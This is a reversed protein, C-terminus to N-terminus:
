ALLIRASVDVVSGTRLEAAWERREAPTPDHDLLLRSLETVRRQQVEDQSAIAAAMAARSLGESLRDVWYTRGEPEPPRGVVTAFAEDVFTDLERDVGDWFATSGVLEAVLEHDPTAAELESVWHALDAADPPSGTIERYRAEVLRGLWAPDAALERALGERTLTGARIRDSWDARRDPAVGEGLIRAVTSDVLAEVEGPAPGSVVVNTIDATAAPTGAARLASRLAGNGGAYGVVEVTYTVSRAARPEAPLVLVDASAGDDGAAPARGTRLGEPDPAGTTAGIALPSSLGTGDPLDGTPYALTVEQEPGQGLWVQFVKRDGSGVADLRWEVVVWSRTGDTVTALLVGPAGEGTLDTWFPAIVDGTPTRGGSGPCCVLDTPGAVGGARLYGDSSVGIRDYSTGNFTFPRDLDVELAEDDGIPVPAIGLGDLGVYRDSPSPVLQPPGGARGPLTTPPLTVLDAGAVAAPAGAAEVRLRADVRTTGSVSTAGPGRNTATVRCTAAEAMGVGASDCESSVTVQGPEAALSVPLRLTPRDEAVLRVEGTQRGVLGDSTFTLALEKTVGRGVTFRRPEVVVSAGDPAAGEVRYTVPEDSVNTVTRRTTVPGRALSADISPTNLHLAQAPDGGLEAFRRVSEDLVLGPARWGDSDTIARLASGVQATTWEPHQERLVAAAGAQAAAATPGGPGGPVVWPAPRGTSRSPAVVVAGAAHAGLLALQLADDRADDSRDLGHTLVDVGDLISAEVAAAADSSFCGMVGCVRYGVTRAGPAVRETAGALAGAREPAPGEGDAADPDPLWPISAYRDLVPRGHTDLTAIVEGAGAAGPAGGPESGPTAVLPVPQRLADRQVAAVGPVALLGRARDAPVTAVLGGYVIRLAGVVRASPVAAAIDSAVRDERDRLARAYPSSSALGPTLARGTVAPSTAPLDAIGGAYIALPDHDLKLLVPVAESDTRALLDADSRVLRSSPAQVGATREGPLLPTATLRRPAADPTQAAVPATAGAVALLVTAAATVIRLAPSRM